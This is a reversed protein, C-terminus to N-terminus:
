EWDDQSTMEGVEINPQNLYQGKRKISITTACWTKDGMQDSVIKIILIANVM